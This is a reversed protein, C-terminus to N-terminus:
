TFEIALRVEQVTRGTQSAIEELPLGQSYLEKVRSKFDQKPEIPNKSVFIDPEVIPIKQVVVDDQTENIGLETKAKETFFLDGQGYSSESKTTTSLNEIKQRVKKSKDALELERKLIKIHREAEASIAKLQSIKDEAIQVNLNTTYIVQRICERAKENLEKMIEDSSFKKDFQKHQHYLMLINILLLFIAFSAIFGM